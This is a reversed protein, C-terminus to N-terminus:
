FHTNFHSWEWASSKCHIFGPHALIVSPKRVTMLLLCWSCLFHAMAKWRRVFAKVALSNCVLLVATRGESMVTIQPSSFPLSSILSSFPRLLQSLTDPCLILLFCWLLISLQASGSGAKSLMSQPFSFIHQGSCAPGQVDPHTHHSSVGHVLWLDMSGTSSSWPCM